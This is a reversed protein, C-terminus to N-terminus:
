LAICDGATILGKVIINDDRNKQAQAEIHIIRVTTPTLKKYPVTPETEEM